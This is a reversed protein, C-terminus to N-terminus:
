LLIAASGCVPCQSSGEISDVSQADATRRLAEIEANDLLETAKEVDRSFVL